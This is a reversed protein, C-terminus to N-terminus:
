PEHNMPVVFFRKNNIRFLLALGVRWVVNAIRGDMFVYKQSFPLCFVFFARTRRVIFGNMRKRRTGRQLRTAVQVHGHHAHDPLQHQVAPREEGRDVARHDRRRPPTAPVAGRVRARRAAQRQARPLGHGGVPVAQAQAAAEPRRLVVDAPMHGIQGAPLQHEALRVAAPQHVHDVHGDHALVRVGQVARGHVQDAAAPVRRAVHVGDVAALQARVSRRDVDTDV